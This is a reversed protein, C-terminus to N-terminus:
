RESSGEGALWRELIIAAAVSDIADRGVRRRREGSARKGKLAAGAELSSGHEDVHEVPLGFREGLSAGFRRAAATLRGPSGDANYPVGVVLLGPRLARVEREIAVWDPGDARMAVACRPAATATLSDGSAIGIRRLGFDFGLVTFPRGAARPHARAPSAPDDAPGGTPPAAPATM